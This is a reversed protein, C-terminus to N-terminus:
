DSREGAAFVMQNMARRGESGCCHIVTSGGFARICVSEAADHVYMHTCVYEVALSWGKWCRRCVDALIDYIANHVKFVCAAM